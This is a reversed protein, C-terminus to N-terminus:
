PQARGVVLQRAGPTPVGPYNLSRGSFLAYKFTSKVSFQGLVADLQHASQGGEFSLSSSDTPRCM